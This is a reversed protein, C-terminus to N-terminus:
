EDLVGGQQDTGAEKARVTNAAGDPIMIPQV